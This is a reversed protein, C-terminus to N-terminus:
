LFVDGDVRVISGLLSDKKPLFHPTLRKLVLNRRV